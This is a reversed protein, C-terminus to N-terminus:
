IGVTPTGTNGGNNGNPHSHQNAWDRITQMTGKKDSVDESCIINGNVYLDGNLTTKTASASIEGKVEATLVHEARDYEFHTGDMFTYYKKDIDGRPLTNVAGLCVGNMPNIDDLLVAVFSNIDITGASKDKDANSVLIPIFDTKFGTEESEVIVRGCDDYNTIRGFMLM